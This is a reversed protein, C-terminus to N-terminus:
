LYLRFLHFFNSTSQLMVVLFNDHTGNSWATHADKHSPYEIVLKDDRRGVNRIVKLYFMRTTGVSSFGTLKLNYVLRPIEVALFSANM